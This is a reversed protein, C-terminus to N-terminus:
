DALLTESFTEYDERFNSLVFYKAAKIIRDDVPKLVGEEDQCEGVPVM